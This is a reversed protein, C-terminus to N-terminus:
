LKHTINNKTELCLTIWILIYKISQMFLYTNTMEAICGGGEEIKFPHDGISYNNNVHTKFYFFQSSQQSKSNEQQRRSSFVVSYTSVPKQPVKKHVM